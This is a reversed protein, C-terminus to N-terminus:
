VPADAAGYPGAQGAMGDVRTEVFNWWQWWTTWQHGKACGSPPRWYSLPWQSARRWVIRRVVLDLVLLLGSCEDFAPM